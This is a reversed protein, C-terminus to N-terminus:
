AVVSKRQVLANLWPENRGPRRDETIWFEKSEVEPISELWHELRIETADTFHRGAHERESDGYKFSLYFCGGPKLAGWLRQLADKLQREPLHLLSACAWIGDYTHKESVDNFSRLEIPLGTLDRARIVLAESADFATVRFGKTAFTRADRGSGCGADLIHAGDPLRDLFRQYLPAMDVNQTDAVFMDANAQYYALTPNSAM